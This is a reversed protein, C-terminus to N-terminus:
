IKSALLGTCLTYKGDPHEYDDYKDITYIVIMGPNQLVKKITDIDINSIKINKHINETDANYTGLPITQIRGHEYILKNLENDNGWEFDGDLYVHVLYLRVNYQTAM